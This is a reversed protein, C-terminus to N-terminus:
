PAPWPRICDGPRWLPPLESVVPHTPTFLDVSGSGGAALARLNRQALELGQRALEELLPRGDAAGTLCALVAINSLIRGDDALERAALFLKQAMAPDPWPPGLLAVGFDVLAAARAVRDGAFPGKLAPYIDDLPIRNRHLTAIAVSEAAVKSRNQEEFGGELYLGLVEPVHLAGHRWGLDIYRDMDNAFSYGEDFWDVADGLNARWMAQPGFHCFMLSQRVSYPPYRLVREATNHAFTENERRTILSDAYVLGVDPRADLTRALVELADPRHRDDANAMTLYRGRAVQICRNYAVQSPEREPTRFYVINDYRRQFERVVAAENEPSNSDCIVIELREGLTQAELDELLGRMFREARYVSVIASVVFRGDAGPTPRKGEICSISRRFPAHRAAPASM